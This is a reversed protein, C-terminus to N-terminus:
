AGHDLRPARLSAFKGTAYFLDMPAKSPIFLLAQYESRGEARFSWTVLPENWDHSIHKYFEKYEEDPVESRPRTWIPKMSNLAKDAEKGEKDKFIVPYAVFDSYRKM